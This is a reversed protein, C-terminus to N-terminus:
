IFNRTIVFDTSNISINHFCLIAMNMILQQFKYKKLLLIYVWNYIENSLAKHSSYM